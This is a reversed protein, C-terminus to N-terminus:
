LLAGTNSDHRILRIEERLQHTRLYLLLAILFIIGTFVLSFLQGSAPLQSSLTEVFKPYPCNIPLVSSHGSQARLVATCDYSAPNSLGRATPPVDSNIRLSFQKTATHDAGITQAPWVLSGNDTDLSGGESDIITAYELVDGLQVSLSSSVTKDTLNHASVTVRLKDSAHSTVQQAPLNQTSNLVSQSYVLPQSCEPAKIWQSPDSPCPLCQRDTSSLTPAFPCTKSTLTTPLTRLVINGSATLISFEGLKGSYGRLGLYHPTYQTNYLALPRLYITGSGGNQKTYPVAREGDAYGFLPTRGVVYYSATSTMTTPIASQLEGRTLGLSTYIDRINQENRDYKSLLESSSAVGGYILDNASAPNASEPPYVLIIAQLAFAAILVLVGYLRVREERKLQEAYVALQGVLNPSFSLNGVLKRFM